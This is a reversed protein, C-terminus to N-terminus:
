QIVEARPAHVIVAQGRPLEALRARYIVAGAQLQYGYASPNRPDFTAAAQQRQAPTLTLWTYYLDTM